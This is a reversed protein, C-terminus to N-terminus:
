LAIPLEPRSGWDTWSGDYIATEGMEAAEAALLIICATLGSGCTFTMPKGQPNLESFITKLAEKSKFKGDTLVEKFPLSVSNPIHGGRLDNRPEPAEAKFRGASRADITIFEDNEINQLVNEADKVAASNLNAEFNGTPYSGTLQPETPLGANKWTSLGGDLVSVNQHGMTKFMWWVRPSSYAGINDYIVLKSDQNIGLQQAAKSFDQESPLTNPLHSNKDSFKGKLDFYRAGAIQINPFEPTLGSVNGKMSADLIILDPDNLNEKLWDVSVLPEIM